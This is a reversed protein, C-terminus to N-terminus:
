LEHVGMLSDFTISATRKRNTALGCGSSPSGFNLRLFVPTALAPVVIQSRRVGCRCVLPPHILSVDARGDRSLRALDFRSVHDCSMCLADPQCGAEM